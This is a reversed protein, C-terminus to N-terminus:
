RVGAPHTLNEWVRDLLTRLIRTYEEYFELEDEDNAPPAATYKPSMQSRVYKQVGPSDIFQHTLQRVLADHEM